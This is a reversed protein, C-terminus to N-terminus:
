QAARYDSVLRDATRGIEMGLVHQRLPLSLTSERARLIAAALSEARSEVVACSEAVDAIERLDSVDTSVFPVDCALGEKVINPWGEHASTVLVVNAAAVAYPMKSPSIGTAEFLAIEPYEIRAMDVARRALDLRKVPNGSYSSACLVVFAHADSWGM